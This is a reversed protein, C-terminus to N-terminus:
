RMGIRRGAMDISLCSPATQMRRAEVFTDVRAAPMDFCRFADENLWM